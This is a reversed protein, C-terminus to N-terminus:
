CQYADFESSGEFQYATSNPKFILHILIYNLRESRLINAMEVYREHQLGNLHNFASSSPMTVASSKSLEKIAERSM